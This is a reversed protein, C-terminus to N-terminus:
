EIIDFQKFSFMERLKLTSLTTYNSSSTNTSWFDHFATIHLVRVPTHFLLIYNTFM